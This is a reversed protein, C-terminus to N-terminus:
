MPTNALATCENYSPSLDFNARFVAQLAEWLDCQGDSGNNAISTTTVYLTPPPSPLLGASPSPTPGAVPDPQAAAPLVPAAQAAQSLPAIGIASITFVLASFLRVLKTIPLIHRTPM